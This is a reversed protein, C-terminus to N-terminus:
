ADAEWVAGGFELRLPAGPMSMSRQRLSRSLFKFFAAFDEVGGLEVPPRGPQALEDAVMHDVAGVTLLFLNVGAEAARSLAEQCAARYDPGDTAMFDSFMFVWSAAQDCHRRDRLQEVRDVADDLAIRLGGYVPSHCCSPISPIELKAAPVCKVLARAPAHDDFAWVTMSVRERLWADRGVNTAFQQYGARVEKCYAELSPSGDVVLSVSTHGSLLPKPQQPFIPALAAGPAPSGFTQRISKLINKPSM